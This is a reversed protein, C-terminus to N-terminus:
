PSIRFNSPTVPPQAVPPPPPPPSASGFAGIPGVSRIAVDDFDEYMDGGLTTFQGNEPLIFGSFGTSGSMNLNSVNLQLVGDIWWQAVGNNAGGTSNKLHVEMLIWRGDSAANSGGFMGDWGSGGGYPNGAMAFDFSSGRINFYCGNSQGCNGGVLYLIKHERLIPAANGGLKLGAQWRVYWRIYVEQQRAFSFGISGSGNTNGSSQGVMHRQGLGGGGGPYNAAATIQERGGNSTTWGGASGLGDCTVWGATGQTQAACNYTTSFPLSQSFASASFFLLNFGVLTGILQAFRTNM